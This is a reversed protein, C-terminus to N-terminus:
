CNLNELRSMVLTMLQTQKTVTTSSVIRPHLVAPTSSDTVDFVCMLGYDAYIKM